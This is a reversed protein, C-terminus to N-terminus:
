AEPLLDLVEYVTALSRLNAPLGHLRLSRGQRALQRRWELLLSLAASDVETVADMDVEVVGKGGDVFARMGDERLAKANAMTVAGRLRYRGEGSEIM